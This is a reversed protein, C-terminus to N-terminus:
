LTSLVRLLPPEKSNKMSTCTWVPAFRVFMLNKRVFRPSWLNIRPYGHNAVTCGFISQSRPQSSWEWSGMTM